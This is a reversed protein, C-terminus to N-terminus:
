GRHRTPGDQAVLRAHFQERHLLPGKDPGARAAARQAAHGLLRAVGDGHALRRAVVHYDDLGHAHALGLGRHGVHGVHEYQHLQGIRAIVQLRDLLAHHFHGIQHDDVLGVDVGIGRHSRPRLDGACQSQQAQMSVGLMQVMVCLDPMRLHQLQARELALAHVSEPRCHGLELRQLGGVASQGRPALSLGLRPHPLANIRTQLQRECLMWPNTLQQRLKSGVHRSPTNRCGSGCSLQKFCLM